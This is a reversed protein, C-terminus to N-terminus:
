RSETSRSGDCPMPTSPSSRRQSGPWVVACRTASRRTRSESKEIEAAFRGLANDAVELRRYHDVTANRLTRYFWSVVAEGDRL